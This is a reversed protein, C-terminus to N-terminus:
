EPKYHKKITDNCSTYIQYYEDGWNRIFNKIREPGDRVGPIDGLGELCKLTHFLYLTLIELASEKRKLEILDNIGQLAEKNEM